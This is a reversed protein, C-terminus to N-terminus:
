GGQLKRVHTQFGLRHYERYEDSSFSGDSQLPNAIFEENIEADPNPVLGVQRWEGDVFECYDGGYDGDGVRKVLVLPEVRGSRYAVLGSYVVHDEPTFQEAEILPGWDELPVEVWDGTQPILRWNKGACIDALTIDRIQM